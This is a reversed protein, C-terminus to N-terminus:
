RPVEPPLPWGARHLPAAAGRYRPGRPPTEESGGRPPRRARRYRDLVPADCGRARPRASSPGAAPGPDVPASPLPPRGEFAAPARPPKREPPTGLGALLAPALARPCLAGPPAALRRHA